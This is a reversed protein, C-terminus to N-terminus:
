GASGVRVFIRWDGVVDALRYGAPTRRAAAPDHPGVLITRARGEIGGTGRQLYDAYAAQDTSSFADIPNGVVVRQGAFVLAEESLGAALVPRGMSHRSVASVVEAPVPNLQPARGWAVVVVFVMAAVALGIDVLDKARDRTVVPVPRRSTLNVAAPTALLMVLWTGYRVAAVTEVAVALIAVVEWWQPRRRFAAVALLLAAVLLMLHLPQAPDLRDWLGLGRARLVNGMVGRYYAVTHWGQPNAFLAAVCLLGAVVSEGPARRLRHLLLHSGTVAVGVLAAGHLNGWLAVLVPVWFIRRSPADDSRLLLLVLAFLPLSLSGLRVSVLDPLLGVTALLLVVAQSRDSAGSRRADRALLLYTAAVAVVHLLLLGPLGRVAAAALVLEGLVPVNRWDATSATAFFPGADVQGTTVVHRGLTVAWLCDGGITAVLAVLMCVVAIM